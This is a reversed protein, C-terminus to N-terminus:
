DFVGARDLIVLMRLMQYSLKLDGGDGKLHGLRILKEVTSYAWEPVSSLTHYMEGTSQEIVSLREEVSKEAAYTGKKNPVGIYDAACFATNGSNRVELHLHAGLSNGTNGEVGLIDGIKVYDGVKVLRKSMHCYYVINGVEDQVAVYNGWAWVSQSKDTVIRSRVVLGPSVATINKSSLGVCDIGKHMKEVGLLTRTGYPSTIKFEGGEFPSIIM